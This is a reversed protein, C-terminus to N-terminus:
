ARRNVRDPGRWHRSVDQSQQGFHASDIVELRQQLDMSESASVRQDIFVKATAIHSSGLAEKEVAINVLM